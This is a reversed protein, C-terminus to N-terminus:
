KSLVLCKFDNRAKNRRDRGIGLEGVFATLEVKLIYVSDGWKDGSAGNGDQNMGVDNIAKM